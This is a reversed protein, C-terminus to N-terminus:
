PRAGKRRLHFRVPSPEPLAFPDDDAPQIAVLLEPAALGRANRYSALQAPTARLGRDSPYVIAGEPCVLTGGWALIPGPLYNGAVDDPMLDESLAWTVVTNSEIMAVPGMEALTDRNTLPVGLGAYEVPVARLCRVVREGDPKKLKCGVRVHGDQTMGLVKSAGPHKLCSLCPLGIFRDFYMRVVALENRSTANRDFEQGPRFEPPGSRVGTPPRLGEAMQM